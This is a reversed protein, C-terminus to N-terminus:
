QELAAVLLNAKRALTLSRQLDGGELAKESQTLFTRADELTKRDAGALGTRSLQAIRQGVSQELALIQRRLAVGQEPSERPALAPVEATLPSTESPAPAPEAAAPPESRILRRRRRTPRPPPPETPTVEAPEPPAPEEIVLVETKEAPAPAASPPPPPVYIVRPATQRRPCGGILLAM